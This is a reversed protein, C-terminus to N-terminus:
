RPNPKRMQLTFTISYYRRLNNRQNMSVGYPLDYARHRVQEKEHFGCYLRRATKKRSGRDVSWGVRTRGWAAQCAGKKPVPLFM